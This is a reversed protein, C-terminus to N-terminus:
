NVGSFNVGSSEIRERYSIWISVTMANRTSVSFMFNWVFECIVADQCSGHSISLLAKSCIFTNYQILNISNARSVGLFFRSMSTLYLKAGQPFSDFLFGHWLFRVFNKLIPWFAFSAASFFAFTLQKQIIILTINVTIWLAFICNYNPTKALVDATPLVKCIALQQGFM